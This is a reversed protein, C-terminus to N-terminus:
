IERRSVLTSSNDDEFDDKIERNFLVAILTSLEAYGVLQEDSNIIFVYDTRARLFVALLQELTYDERAFAVNHEMLKTVPQDKSIHLLDLKDTRILGCVKNAKNLVPFVTDGTKYLKDLNLPGLFDSDKLFTIDDRPMTILIAKRKDFSMAGSILNRQKVSLVERPTRRLLQILEKENAPTYEKLEKKIADELRKQIKKEERERAKEEREKSTSIPNARFRDLRPDLASVLKAMMKHPFSQKM